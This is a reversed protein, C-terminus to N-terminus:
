DMIERQICICLYEFKGEEEIKAGWLVQYLYFSLTKGVQLVTDPSIQVLSVENWWAM